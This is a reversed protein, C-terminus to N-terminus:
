VEGGALALVAAGIMGADAGFAAHVILMGERDPPLAQEAVVARAPELLMEGARAAGGGVVIAEPNFCNAITVMGVGLRRGVSAVAEQAVPDGELALDTVLEGTIVRGSALARGLGSSPERAAAHAGARGLAPGSAYVELHGRGPCSGQCPPGDMEIVMHGLEAGLGRAGRYLRGGLVLGGGIGTGLTLMVVDSLGEAAGARQEALAALNADNDVFVPMGLREELLSRFPVGELRLHTSFHSVGDASVLAPIGCGVAGVDPEAAQVEEVAEVMTDLVGALDTGRWLKMSRQRVGLREDVVGTLLKTGGADMGIVLGKM